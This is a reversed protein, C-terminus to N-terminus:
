EWEITAPPKSTIDYVVRNIEPVENVLRTALRVQTQAPLTLAQATMFDNTAVARVAVLNGYTRGDGMVGVSRVPTLVAFYQGLRRTLPSHELEERVIADAARLVDLRDRTVEGIVRVALGPGPFPQRQLIAEPVGLERGLLRVEDKFLLRLPELLEFNMDSPLGGVNHHTKIKGATQHGTASEIVDPYLTGQVLWRLHGLRRSEDEFVRIFTEGIRRRKEEPDLVGALYSLFRDSADVTILSDGLFGRLAAATETAENLRLLGNDIFVCTLQEGIARHVLAAAVTSDVGGSVACIARGTGITRRVQEVGEDLFSRMQWSPRCQCVDFLFNRLITGGKPTHTVEPHFQVAFLKREEDGIAAVPTNETRAIVQFGPPVASVADGHSMWVDLRPPLRHFLTSDGNHEVVAPGYERRGGREVRGGLQRAMLQMGYCIGLVPIGLDLVGPDIGPVGPDYVSAPGGSLILGKPQREAIQSATLTHPVIESYVRLERIRRGILHTYQSGYDLILVVDHQARRPPGSNQIEEVQRTASVVAM